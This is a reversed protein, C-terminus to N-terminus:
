TTVVAPDTQLCCGPLSLRSSPWAGQGPEQIVARKGQGILHRLFGAKPNSNPPFVTNTGLDPVFM